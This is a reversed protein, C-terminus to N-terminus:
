SNEDKTPRRGFAAKGKSQANEEIGDKCALEDRSTKDMM